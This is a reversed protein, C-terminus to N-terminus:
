SRFTSPRSVLELKILKPETTVLSCRVCKNSIFGEEQMIVVLSLGLVGPSGRLESFTGLNLPTPAGSVFGPNVGSTYNTLANQAIKRGSLNSM